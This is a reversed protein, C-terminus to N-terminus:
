IYTCAYLVGSIKTMTLKESAIIIPVFIIFLPFLSIIFLISSTIEKFFFKTAMLNNNFNEVCFSQCGGCVYFVLFGFSTNDNHLGPFYCFIWEHLFLFNIVIFFFDYFSERNPFNQVRLTPLMSALLWSKHYFCM